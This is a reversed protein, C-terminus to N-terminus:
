SPASTQSQDIFGGVKHRIVYGYDPIFPRSAGVFVGRFRGIEGDPNYESSSSDMEIINRWKWRGMYDGPDFNTRGGPSKPPNPVLNKMVDTHHIVSDEYLDGSTYDFYASNLNRKTGQTANADTYPYVEVWSSGTHTYRKPFRDVIYMIGEYSYQVGMPALLEKVRDSHRVDDRFNSNQRVVNNFTEQSVIAAFVPQGSVQAWAGDTGADSVLQNYYKKFVGHSAYRGAVTTSWTTQDIDGTEDTGALVVKHNALRNYEDRKRTEWLWRTNATLNTYIMDLQQRFQFGLFIDKLCVNDSELAVQQLNYSTLTHASSITTATPACSNDTNDNVDVDAWTYTGLGSREHQYTQLTAGMGLPWPENEVLTMWVSKAGLKQAMRKDIRNAEHALANDINAM